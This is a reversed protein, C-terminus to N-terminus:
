RENNLVETLKEPVNFWNLGLDLDIERLLNTLLKQKDTYREKRGLQHAEKRKARQDYLLDIANQLCHLYTLEDDTFDWFKIPLEM